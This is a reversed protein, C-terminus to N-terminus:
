CPRERQVRRRHPCRLALISLGVPLQEVVIAYEVSWEKLM